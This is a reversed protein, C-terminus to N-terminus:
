FKWVFDLQQDVFGTGSKTTAVGYNFGMDRDNELVNGLDFYFGASLSCHFTDWYTDSDYFLDRNGTIDRIGARLYFTEWRQWEFGNNVVAHSHDLQKFSGNLLYAVIDCNWIFPKGLLKLTMEQGLVMAMPLTDRFTSKLGEDGFRDSFEWQLNTFINKIVLGYTLKENVTYQMGFDFGGMTTLSSYVLHSSFDFDTPLRQYYINFNVGTSLGKKILYSLTIKFSFSTFSGSELPYEQDDVLDKIVPDGRYLLSLAMGVRPPILFEFAVNGETRGLTKYGVGSSVIRQKMTSLAAPNWWAHAYLPAATQAGGSAFGAAGVPARLYADGYGGSSVGFSNSSFFVICLFTFSGTVKKIGRSLLKEM